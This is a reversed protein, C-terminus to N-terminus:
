GDCNVTDEVIIPKEYGKKFLTFRFTGAEKIISDGANFTVSQWIPLFRPRYEQGNTFQIVFGKHDPNDDLFAVKITGNIKRNREAYCDIEDRKKNQSAQYKDIVFFIIIGFIVIIIIWKDPIPIIKFPKKM